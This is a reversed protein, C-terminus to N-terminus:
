WDNWNFRTLLRRALAHYSLLSSWGPKGVKERPDLEGDVGLVFDFYPEIDTQSAPSGSVDCSAPM